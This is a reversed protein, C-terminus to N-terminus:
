TLASRVERASVRKVLLQFEVDDGAARLVEAGCRRALRRLQESSTLAAVGVTIRVISKGGETRTIAKASQVAPHRGLDAAATDALRDLDVSGIGTTVARVARPRFHLLVWWAGVLVVVVGVATSVTTWWPWEPLRGIFDADIRAAADRALRNDAGYGITWAAGGLLLVAVVGTLLRDVIRVAPTM